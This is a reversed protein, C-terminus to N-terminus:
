MGGNGNTYPLARGALLSAVECVRRFPENYVIPPGGGPDAVIQTAAPRGSGPATEAPSVGLFPSLAAVGIFPRPAIHLFTSATEATHCGGCTGFGLHHRELPILPAGGGQNWFGGPPPATAEGGQIAPVPVVHRFTNLATSGWFLSETNLYADLAPSANLTDDPTQDLPDLRLRMANFGAGTPKLRYERLKWSPGFAIDNTRVQGIAAGFNPNGPQSGPPVIGGLITQLAANYMPSGLPGTAVADSLVHWDAAWNIESYPAGSHVNPLRYELIVTGPLPAGLPDIFGFVFRAEGVRAPPATMTWQSMDVRNVIALLRLPAKTMDLACAGGGVIPDTALCGSALLWPEIVKVRFTPRAPVPFGNVTNGVEFSHLWDAVFVNWPVSGAMQAMLQTFTWIGVTGPACPGAPTLTTRCPDNVVGLHRIVLERDFNVPIAPVPLGSTVDLYGCPSALLSERAETTPGENEPTEVDPGACAALGVCALAGCVLLTRM